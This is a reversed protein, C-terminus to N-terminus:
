DQERSSVEAEVITRAIEDQIEFVDKVERDYRESWIHYGDTANILQATIRVRSGSRRVSGELVTRVNLRRGIESIDLSKGKLAFASTRAAVKLSPIRTLANLIEETIGDSFYENDPDAGMNEFPLVGISPPEAERVAASISRPTQYVKPDSRSPSSSAHQGAAETAPVPDFSAHASLSRVLEGASAYRDAPNRELMQAVAADLWAPIDKRSASARPSAETFRKVFGEKGAFPPKGVLMEYLACGLSYIDSRGDLERRGHTARPEHLRSNRAVWETRTLQQIGGVDIARAIGFDAVVAHSGVSPHEGSSTATSSARVTRMRSHTPSKGLSGSPQMSRSSASGRSRLTANGVSTRCVYLFRRSTGRIM